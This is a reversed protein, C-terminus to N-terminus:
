RCYNRKAAPGLHQLMENTINDSGTAKKLKLKTLADELEM